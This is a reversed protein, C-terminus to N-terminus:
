SHKFQRRSFSFWLTSFKRPFFSVDLRSVMNAAFVFTLKACHTFTSWVNQSIRCHCKIIEESSVSCSLSVYSTIYPPRNMHLIMATLSSNVVNNGYKAAEDEYLAKRFICVFANKYTLDKQLAIKHAFKTFWWAFTKRKESWFYRTHPRM